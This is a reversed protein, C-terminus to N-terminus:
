LLGLGRAAHVAEARSTVDLKRFLHRGHTKATAESIDLAVAIQKFRLGEELAALVERERPSLRPVPSPDRPLLHPALLAAVAAVDHVAERMERRPAGHSFSIAGVTRGGARVPASGGSRFGAAEVVGDMPLDFSRSRTFDGEVFEDGRATLLFYTCAAVPMSCGPALLEAGDTAVIEFRGADPDIRALSVRDTGFAGRLVAAARDLPDLPTTLAAALADQLARAV